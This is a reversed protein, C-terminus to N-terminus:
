SALQHAWDVLRRVENFGLQWFAPDRTNIGLPALLDDPTESGGAALLTKYGPVFAAGQERYLGYLALVLLEGFVYSYCYFPTHIFHPIYSWGLEYGKAQEVAEGYYRYNAEQWHAGLQEPTLRESARGAFAAQEFRTLVTQRFITAFIDEIKSCVLSLKAHQDHQQELLHEFVLMEGFVSATEALPLTPFFNLLTQKNSLYFHLGHGLEHAVTMTDRLDDTYNCLVYPHLTPSFGACFAGGRKGPRVEADIWNRTFFENAMDRFQSDFAGFAELIVQQTHEYSISGRDGGVPAYQDYTQLRPLNLLRAKLAFYRQAVSYNQEVVDLMTEVTEPAIENSLHQQAMPDPYSRLRDMTLRDLMLTNYVYSLTQAQHSLVEFLTTHARQRVEREHHRMLMLVKDLTLNQPTGELEIPFSLSTTLETFFQKWARTGAVDKENIVREEPETLTHPKYRRASQLYHRYPALLPNDILRQAADDDLELWELDFFLLMNNITTFQQEVRQRLNRHEAKSTDSAFLLEAYAAPRYLKERLAELRELGERLHAASPGAKITTRYALAFAEAETTVQKITEAIAPDDFHAFIDSLDWTVGAASAPASSPSSM